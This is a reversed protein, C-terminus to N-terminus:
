VENLLDKIIEDQAVSTRKGYKREQYEEALRRQQWSSVAKKFKKEHAKQAYNKPDPAAYVSLSGCKPCEPNKTNPRITLKVIRGCEWCYLEIIVAPNESDEEIWKGKM